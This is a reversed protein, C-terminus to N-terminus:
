RRAVLLPMVAFALLMASYVTAAVPDRTALYERMTLGRLGLVLTLEALLM